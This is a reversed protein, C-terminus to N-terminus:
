LYGSKEVTVSGCSILTHLLDVIASQLEKLVEESAGQASLWSPKSPSM